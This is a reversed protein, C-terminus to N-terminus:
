ACSETGLCISKHQRSIDLDLKGGGRGFGAQRGGAPRQAQHRGLRRLAALRTPFAAARRGVISRGTGSHRQGLEM